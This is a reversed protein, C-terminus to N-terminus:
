RLQSPPEPSALAKRSPIRQCKSAEEFGGPLIAIHKRERMLKLFSAKSASAPRGILSTFARFMPSQYLM